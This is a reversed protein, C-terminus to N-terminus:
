ELAVVDLMGSLEAKELVDFKTENEDDIGDWGGGGGDIM